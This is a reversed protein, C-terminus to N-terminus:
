DPKRDFDGKKYEIPHELIEDIESRASREGPQGPEKSNRILGYMMILNSIIIILFLVANSFGTIQHEEPISYFLLITILGRAAVYIGPLIQKPAILKFAGWRLLYMVALTLFSVVFVSLENFGDLTISMGFVLFFFTRILFASELTILKIESLLENYAEPIIYRKLFGKFFIQINNLMLGFVLVFMLSSLHFLKGMAYLLLLVAIPLFLKVEGTVKQILIIILYGFGIAIILTLGMSQLVYLSITGFGSLNITDLIFYFLMIGLVDSFAAEVILFEKKEGILRTVSPIIISSSLISLPIAYLIAEFRDAVYFFRIILAIGFTTLLLLLLAILLARGLLGAKKKELKLDLAAELVILVLGVTGLIELVPRLVQGELEIFLSIIFGTVILMLVSPINTKSALANFFYSLLVVISAAILAWYTNFEM